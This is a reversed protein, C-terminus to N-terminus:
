SNLAIAEVNSALWLVHIKKFIYFLIDIKKLM